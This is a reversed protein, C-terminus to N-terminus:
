LQAEDEALGLTCTGLVEVVHQAMGFKACQRMSFAQVPLTWASLWGRGATEQM